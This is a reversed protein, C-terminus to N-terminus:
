RDRDLLIRAFELVGSGYDAVDLKTSKYLESTESENNAADIPKDRNLSWQSTMKVGNINCYEVLRQVDDKYFYENLTDNRGIMPIAGLLNYYEGNPDKPFKDEKGALMSKLQANVADLAQISYQAMKMEGKVDAPYTSGYDMLMLDVMTFQIGKTIAENLINIGSNPLGDPMVALTFSIEVDPNNNQIIQLADLRRTIAVANNANDGEIDFNIMKVGTKDIVEQYAVALSSADSCTQALEKNGAAAGGFSIMVDGGNVRVAQLKQLIKLTANEDIPYNDFTGWRPSCAGASNVFSFTFDKVGQDIATQPDYPPWNTMDIFPMFSLKLSSHQVNYRRIFNDMRQKVQAAQILSLNTDDVKPQFSATALLTSIKNEIINSAASLNIDESAFDYHQLKTIELHQTDSRNADFNQLLLAINTATTNDDSITYPTMFSKAVGSGLTLNGLSFTVTEGQQYSFSGQADTFGSQTATKYGLGQVVADAFVGTQVLASSSDSGGGCGVLAITSGIM